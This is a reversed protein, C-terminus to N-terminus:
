LQIYIFINIQIQQFFMLNAELLQFSLKALKSNQVGFYQYGATYGM